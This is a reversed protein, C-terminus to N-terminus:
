DCKNPYDRAPETRPCDTRAFRDTRHNVIARSRILAIADRFDPHDVDGLIKVVLQDPRVASTGFTKGAIQCSSEAERWLALKAIYDRLSM